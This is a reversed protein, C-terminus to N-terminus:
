KELICHVGLFRPYEWKKPYKIQIEESPLPEIVKLIKFGFKTLCNFYMELPRHVHTTICCKDTELSISFDAEIPIERWYDFWPEKEYNWYTPWYCPHTITFIFHGGPELITKTTEIVDDLFLVDMLTMNAVATTFSSEEVTSIFNEIDINVYNINSFASSKRKALEINKESMDIGIVFIANKAILRTLSGSGCGLDVVKTINCSELLENIAPVLIYNYSLDQGSEIQSLRLLAIRDWEKVIENYKKGFAPRVRM